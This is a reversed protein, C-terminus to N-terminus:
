AQKEKLLASIINNCRTCQYMYHRPILSKVYRVPEWRHKCETM